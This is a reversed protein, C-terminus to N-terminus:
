LNAMCMPCVAKEAMWRQMCAHHFHHGCSTEFHDAPVGSLCIACTEAAEAAEAEVPFWGQSVKPVLRFEYIRPIEGLPSGIIDYGTPEYHRINLTRKPLVEETIDVTDQLRWDWVLAGMVGVEPPVPEASPPELLADRPRPHSCNQENDYIFVLIQLTKDFSPHCCPCICCQDEFFAHVLEETPDQACYNSRKHQLHNSVLGLMSEADISTMHCTSDEVTSIGTKVDQPNELVMTIRISFPTPVFEHHDAQDSQVVVRGQLLQHQRWSESAHLMALFNHVSRREM